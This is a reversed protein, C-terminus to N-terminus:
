NCFAGTDFGDYYDLRRRRSSGVFPDTQTPAPWRWNFPERYLNDPNQSLLRPHVSMSDLILHLLRQVRFQTRRLGLLVSLARISANPSAPPQPNCNIPCQGSPTVTYRLGLKHTLIPFDFPM